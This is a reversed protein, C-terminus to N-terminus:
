PLKTHDWEDKLFSDALKSKIKKGLPKPPKRSVKAGKKRHKLVM